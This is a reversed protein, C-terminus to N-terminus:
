TRATPISGTLEGTRCHVIDGTVPMSAKVV